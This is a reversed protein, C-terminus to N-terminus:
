GSIGTSCIDSHCDIRMQAGTALRMILIVVAIGALMAVYAPVAHISFTPLSYLILADNGGPVLIVGAGMLVGGVLNVAWNPRVRRDFRFSGRQWTSLAMGAFVAAFLSLRIPMPTQSALVLGEVGQRLAGTYTWPGHFLYLVGNALGMLAAATSLRYQRALALEGLRVQQPRTLWLRRLEWIAWAWLLLALSGAIPVLSRILPLAPLPQSVNGARAVEIEILVGFAFGCLTVLMRLQGDALRALTSFSCGGNLAAGMGFMFGGLISTSSLAFGNISEGLAPDFWLLPFIITLVWLVSKGFSLLCYARTTSLIEAVARVTCVSARHAAFGLIAALGWSILLLGM